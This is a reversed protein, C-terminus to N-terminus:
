RFHLEIRLALAASNLGEIVITGSEAYVRSYAENFPRSIQWGSGSEEWVVVGALTKGTTETITLNVSDTAALVWGTPYDTGEVAASVRAAVSSQATLTIAYDGKEADTYYKNNSGQALNDTTFDGLSITPTLTGANDDYVWTIGVGDQILASVYDEVAEQTIGVYGDWTAIQLATPIVGGGADTILALLSSNSHTHRATTNQDVKSRYTATFAKNTTGETLDDLDDAAKNFANTVQAATYDGSQATVDGTRGFVTDVAAGGETPTVEDLWALAGLTVYVYTGDSLTLKLRNSSVGEKAAATVHIDDVYKVVGNDNDFQMNKGHEAAGPNRAVGGITAFQKILRMDNNM